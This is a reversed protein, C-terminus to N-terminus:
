NNIYGSIPKIVFKDFDMLIPQLFTPGRRNKALKLLFNHNVFGASPDNSNSQLIIPTSTIVYDATYIMGMSFSTDEIDIIYKGSGKGKELGGRNVQAATLGIMKASNLLGRFKATIEEIEYWIANSNSFSVLTLYDVVLVDINLNIAFNVIEEITVSKSPFQKIYLNKINDNILHSNNKIFSNLRVKILDLSLELSVYLTKYGHLASFISNYLLLFSKGSGTPAIYMAIEGNRIGGKLFDDFGLHLPLTKIFDSEDEKEQLLIDCRKCEFPDNKDLLLNTLESVYEKLVNSLKGDSTRQIINNYKEMLLNTRAYLINEIIYELDTEDAALLLSQTYPKLIVKNEEGLHYEILEITWRNHVTVCHDFIQKYYNYPPKESFDVNKLLSKLRFLDEKNRNLACGLIDAPTLLNM